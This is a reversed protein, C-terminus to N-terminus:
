VVTLSQVEDLRELQDEVRGLRAPVIWHGVFTDFIINSTGSESFTHRPFSRWRM